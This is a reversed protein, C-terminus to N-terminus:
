QPRGGSAYSLAQLAPSSQRSHPNMITWSPEHRHRGEGQRWSNRSGDQLREIDNLKLMNQYTETAMILVQLACDRQSCSCAADGHQLPQIIVCTRRQKAITKQAAMARVYQLCRSHGGLFLLPALLFGQNTTLGPVQVIWMQKTQHRVVQGSSVLENAQSALAYIQSRSSFMVVQCRKELHSTASFPLLFKLLSFVVGTM